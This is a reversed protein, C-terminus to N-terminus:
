CLCRRSAEGRMAPVFTKLYLGLVAVLPQLPLLPHALRLLPLTCLLPSRLLQGIIFLDRSAYILRASALQFRLRRRPYNPLDLQRLIVWVVNHMRLCQARCTRHLVRGGTMSLLDLPIHAV